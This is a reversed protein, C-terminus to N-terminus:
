NISSIKIDKDEDGIFEEESVADEEDRFGPMVDEMLSDCLVVGEFSVKRRRNDVIREREM